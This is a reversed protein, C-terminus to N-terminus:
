HDNNKGIKLFEEQQLRWLRYTVICDTACYEMVKQAPADYIRNFANAGLEEENIGELYPTIDSSFDILGTRVYAQFKLASIGKRHDLVHSSQMTCAVCNQIKTDLCVLTWLYEFMLNQIVKKITPDTLIRIFEKRVTNSMTKAPFCFAENESIGVGIYVIHHKNNHPKLGTTEYDLTITSHEQIAVLRKLINKEDVLTEVCEREEKWTLLPKEIHKIAKKIDKEFIVEAAGIAEMTRLIYAPHYSPIIWCKLDRDPISWNRWQSIAGLKSSYWRHGVLCEIALMGLPVIVKPKYKSIAKWVRTRCADVEMGTLKHKEPPCCGIANIKIIDAEPDLGYKQLKNNLFKGSLGVLPKGQRDEDRGPAEGIFMIRKEGAGFPKIKPSECTRYLRCKGCGEGMATPNTIKFDKSEFFGFAM